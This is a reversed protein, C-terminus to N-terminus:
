TQPPRRWALWTDPVGTRLGLYALLGVPGLMFTLILCPIVLVHRLGLSRADRVQWAGVFLDFALYHIWGALLLSQNEFLLAVGALSGFGGQSGGLNTAILYLYLAGLLVPVAVTTYLRTWRWTPVVALLLWGPVVVASAVSFLTEPTM